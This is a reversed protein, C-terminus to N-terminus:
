FQNNRKMRRYNVIAEIEMKSDTWITSPTLIIRRVKAKFTDKWMQIYESTDFTSDIQKLRYSAFLAIIIQGPINTIYIMTGGIMYLATIINLM